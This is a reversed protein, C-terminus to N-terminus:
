EPEDALHHASIAFVVAQILFHLILPLHTDYSIKKKKGGM